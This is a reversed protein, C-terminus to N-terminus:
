CDLIHRHVARFALGLGLFCLKVVMFLTRQEEESQSIQVSSRMFKLCEVWSVQSCFYTGRM